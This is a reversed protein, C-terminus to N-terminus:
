EDGGDHRVRPDKRRPMRTSGRAKAPGDAIELVRALREWGEVTVPALDTGRFRSFKPHAIGAALAERLAGQSLEIRLEADSLRQDILVASSVGLAAALRDLVPLRPSKKRGTLLQNVYPTGLGARSALETQTWGKLEQLRSLNQLRNAPDEPLVRRRPM